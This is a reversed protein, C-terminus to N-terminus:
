SVILWSLVMWVADMLRQRLPRHAPSSSGGATVGASGAGLRLGPTQAVPAYEQRRVGVRQQEYRLSGDPYYGRTHEAVREEYSGDGRFVQRPAEAAHRQNTRPIHSSM